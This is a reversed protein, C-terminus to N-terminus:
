KCFFEKINKKLMGDVKKPAGLMEFVGNEVRWFAKCRSCKIRIATEGNSECLCRGCAPCCLETYAVVQHGGHGDSQISANVTM